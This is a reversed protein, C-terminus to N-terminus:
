RRPSESETLPMPRRVVPTRSADANVEEPRVPRVVLPERATRREVRVWQTPASPAPPQPRMSSASVPMVGILAALVLSTSVALVIRGISPSRMGHMSVAARM